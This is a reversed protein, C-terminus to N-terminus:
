LFHLLNMHSFAGEPIETFAANVMTRILYFFVDDDDDDDDDVCIYNSNSDDQLLHENSTKMVDSFRM